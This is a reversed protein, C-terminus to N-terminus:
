WAAKVHCFLLPYAGILTSRLVGLAASAAAVLKVYRRQKSPINYSPLFSAAIYGDVYDMLSM